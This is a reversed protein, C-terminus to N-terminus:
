VRESDYIFGCVGRPGDAKPANCKWFRAAPNSDSRTEPPHTCPPPPGDPGLLARNLTQLEALIAQLLGIVIQDM